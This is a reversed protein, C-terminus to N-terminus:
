YTVAELCLFGRSQLTDNNLSSTPSLQTTHVLGAKEAIAHAYKRQAADLNSPLFAERDSLVANLSIRAVCESAVGNMVSGLLTVLYVVNALNSGACVGGLSGGLGSSCVIVIFRNRIDFLCRGIGEIPCM